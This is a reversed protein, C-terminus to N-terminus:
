NTVWCQEAKPSILFHNVMDMSEPTTQPALRSGKFTRFYLATGHRLEMRALHIGLCTRTGAGFPHFAVKSSAQFEGKETLFREPVFSEPADYIRADRHLSFAQTSVTIGEPIYYGGLTAGGKPVTRPLAGPAAGYLRLTEEIVASLYPLKKLDEDTYDEPLAGVEAELKAQVARHSLVAWVIYTLTVATTGSGAVIFGAAEFAVEYDTLTADEKENESVIRSFMNAGKIGDFRVRRMTEEAFRQVDADATVFDQIARNPIYHLMKALVPLESNFGGYKTADEIKQMASTKEGKDLMGFPEGFALHSIVDATMLTWWKFVDLQGDRSLEDKMKDVTMSIKDVIVSDWNQTIASNSFLPALLRRRKAHEHPDIMSFVDASEGQRFSSYWPSKLYGSGSRHIEQFAAPDAIAIEHPSIRVIPGYRQHLDHVYHMRRGLVVHKKLWLHTFRAYFPGPIRRLPTRYARWLLQLLLVALALSGAQLIIGHSSISSM